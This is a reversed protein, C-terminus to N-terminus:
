FLKSIHQSLWTAVAPLAKLARDKKMAYRMTVVQFELPMRKLFTMMNPMNTHTCGRGVVGALAFLMGPEEPMDVKDPHAEIAALTPLKQYIDCFTLFETTVGFGVNGASGFRFDPDKIDSDCGKQLLDNNAHWSRPAAYSKDTTNPDFTYLHDNQFQIYDTIRHDFKEDMAWSLWEPVDLRLTFHTMRSKLATSMPYVVANDTELNGAGVIFCLPHLNKVGVMKDLILKYAAAQVPPTASTLEDLFLLWGNYGEPIEDGEVPFTEMPVYGAKQRVTDISPFGLMDTPECQSLRLDIVFLKSAEAIKKVISSKGIAPSGHLMPVRGSKLVKRIGSYAESPKVTLENSAAAEM